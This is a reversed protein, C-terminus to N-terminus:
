NTMRIARLDLRTNCPHPRSVLPATPNMYIHKSSYMVIIRDISTSNSPPSLSLQASSVPPTQVMHSSPNKRSGAVLTHMPLPDM